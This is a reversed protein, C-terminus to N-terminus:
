NEKGNQKNKINLIIAFIGYNIIDLYNSEIQKLIEVDQEMNELSMIRKLKVCIEDVFYSVRLSRWINGYDSNKNEMLKKSELWVTHYAKFSEDYGKSIDDEWSKIRMLYIISYNIIGIFDDELSDDVMQFGNGQITAIRQAKIYTKDTLSKVRYDMWSAGYTNFKDEFVLKCLDYVDSYEEVSSSKMPHVPQTLDSLLNFRTPKDGSKEFVSNLTNVVQCDLKESCDDSDVQTYIEVVNGKYNYSFYYHISEGNLRCKDVYEFVEWFDNSNFSKIKDNSINKSTLAELFTNHQYYKILRNSKQNINFEDIGGGIIVMFDEVTLGNLDGLSYQMLSEQVYPFLDSSERSYKISHEVIQKTLESTKPEQPIDKSILIAFTNDSINSNILGNKLVIIIESPRSSNIVSILMSLTYPIPVESTFTANEYIGSLSSDKPSDHHQFSLTTNFSINNKQCFEYISDFFLTFTYESGINDFEPNNTLDTASEYKETLENSIKKLFIELVKNFEIKKM